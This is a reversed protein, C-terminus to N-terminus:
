SKVREVKRSQAGCSNSQSRKGVIREPHRNWRIRESWDINCEEYNWTM